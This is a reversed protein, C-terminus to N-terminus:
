VTDSLPSTAGSLTSGSIPTPIIQVSHPLPHLGSMKYHEVHVLPCPDVLAIIAVVSRFFLLLREPMVIGVYVYLCRTSRATHATASHATTTVRHELRARRDRREAVVPTVTHRNCLSCRMAPVSQIGASATRRRIIRQAPRRGARRMDSRDDLRLLRGTCDRSKFFVTAALAECLPLLLKGKNRM